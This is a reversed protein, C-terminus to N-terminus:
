DTSVEGPRYCVQMKVVLLSGDSEGKANKPLYERANDFYTSWFANAELDAEYSVPFVEGMDSPDEESGVAARFEEASISRFWVTVTGTEAPMRALQNSISDGALYRINSWFHETGEADGDFVVKCVLERREPKKLEEREKKPIRFKLYERYSKRWKKLRAAEKEAAAEALARRTEWGKRAVRSRRVYERQQRRAEEIRKQEQYYRRLSQSIKRRVAPAIKRTKKRRAM